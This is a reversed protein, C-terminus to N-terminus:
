LDAVPRKRDDGPRVIAALMLSAALWPGFDLLIRAATYSAPFGFWAHYTMHAPVSALVGLATVFLLRAGFGGGLATFSLLGAALTAMAITVLLQEPMARDPSISDGAPLYLLLGSPGAVLSAEYAKAEADQDAAHSHVAPYVYLGRAPGLSASLASRFPHEHTLNSWGIDDLPPRHLAFAVVMMALGGLVGALGVRAIRSM